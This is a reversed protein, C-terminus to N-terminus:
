FSYSVRVGYTRPWAFQSTDGLASGSYDLLYRKNSLNEGYIGVTFNGNPDTWNTQANILAYGSQRYRQKGALEPGALPGYLSPNRVVYSDTYNINSSMTLSGDFLKITYDVGANATWLPARAMEEGSWDQLQNSVNRQTSADLGTGTVNPFDEYRAHVYAVGARLNLNDSPAIDVQMDAGYIEAKPANFLQQIIGGGGLPNPVTVGVQIDTYDYYFLASSFRYADQATKFGIEYADVEEQDAPNYVAPDPLSAAFFTGSRYGATYSTYVNTRDSLEYRIVARPTVASFDKTKDAPPVVTTTSINNVTYGGGKEETSYRLGATVFLKDVVEWTGDVYASFATSDLHLDETRTLTFSNWSEADNSRFRDRYYMGGVNINWRDIVDINYNLSEQITFQEIGDSEGRVLDLKTGDFDFNNTSNRQAYGTTSTLVGADTNLMFNVSAEKVEMRNNGKINLTVRDQIMTGQSLAPYASNRYAHGRDDLHSIYNLGFALSMDETPSWHLKGRLSKSSLPTADFDDGSDALDAGLDRIYSDSSRLNGAVSYSLNEALPGSVYGRVRRDNFRGYGAGINGEFNESPPLTEIVIAGGTANRGYLTGQPGKLIQVSAINALEANVAIADPQYLGDIYIAVNNELGIGVILSSIGRIAPQSVAGSRNIQVGAAIKGIDELNNVGSRDLMEGSAVTISVPVTELLEARRQATVLVEELIGPESGTNAQQALAPATLLASGIALAVLSNHFTIHNNNM